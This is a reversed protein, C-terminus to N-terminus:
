NGAMTIWNTNDSQLIAWKGAAATFIATGATATGIPVVNSSASNVIQAAISKLHMWQGPLTAASPLTLTFTGSANIIASGQQAAVSGSTGTLTAPATTSIINFAGIPAFIGGNFTQPATWVLPVSTGFGVTWIGNSKSLTVPGTATILAPFPFAANVRINAPLSTM